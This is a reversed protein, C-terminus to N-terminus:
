HIGGNFVCVHNIEEGNMRRVYVFSCAMSGVWDNMKMELLWPNDYYMGTVLRSPVGFEGVGVVWHLTFACM